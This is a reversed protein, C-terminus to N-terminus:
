ILAMAAEECPASNFIFISRMVSNKKWSWFFIWCRFFTKQKDMIPFAATSLRVVSSIFKYKRYMKRLLALSHHFDNTEYFFLIFALKLYRGEKIRYEGNDNTKGKRARQKNIGTLRYRSVCRKVFCGVYASHM